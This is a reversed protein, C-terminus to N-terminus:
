SMKEVFATRFSNSIPILNDAIRIENKDFSDIKNTNVIFSKHVRIFIDPLKQIAEAISERALIKQDTVHYMMYNGDKELYLINKTEIRYMKSGSKLSIVPEQDRTQQDQIQFVRSIAKTFRELSIPKILYDVAQVEYSEVAYESYATTFIIKIGPPIMRSLSIGSLHPMNIDLFVLDVAEKTLFGFAQMPNRFTGTLEVSDFHTLYNKILEIARPEDDVVIVKM